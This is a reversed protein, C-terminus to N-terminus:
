PCSEHPNQCPGTPSDNHVYYHDVSYRLSRIIWKVNSLCSQDSFLPETEYNSGNQFIWLSNSKHQWIHNRCALPFRLYFSTQPLAHTAQMEFDRKSSPCDNRRYRLTSHM